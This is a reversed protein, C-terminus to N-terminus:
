GRSERWIQFTVVLAWVLAAIAAFDFLFAYRVDWGYKGGLGQAIIWILVSAAIVLGVRRMQGARRRAAKLKVEDQM